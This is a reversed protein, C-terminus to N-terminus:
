EKEKYLFLNAKLLIEDKIILTSAWPGKGLSYDNRSFYINVKIQRWDNALQNVQIELPILGIINKIQLESIISLSELNESVEFKKTDIIALPFNIEDFFIDSMLLKKYKKYNLDVSNINVSFLARNNEKNNLDIVVYGEFKNFEGKVDEALLIPLEFKIESLDQDLIWVNKANISNINILICFICFIHKAFKRM